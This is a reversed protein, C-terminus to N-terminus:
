SVLGSRAIRKVEQVYHLMSGKLGLAPELMMDCGLLIDRLAFKACELKHEIVATYEEDTLDPTDLDLKM